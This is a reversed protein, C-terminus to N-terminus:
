IHIFFTAEGISTKNTVISPPQLFRRWKRGDMLGRRAEGLTGGSRNVCPLKGISYTFM